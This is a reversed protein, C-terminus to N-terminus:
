CHKMEYGNSYDIEPDILIFKGMDKWEIIAWSGLNDYGPVEMGDVERPIDFELTSVENYALHPTINMAYGLTQLKKGSLTELILVPRDKLKLKSFDFVM